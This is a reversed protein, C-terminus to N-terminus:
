HKSNPADTPSLPIEFSDLQKNTTAVRVKRLELTAHALVPEDFGNTDYFLYGAVTTHPAVTTTKFGFDEDDALIKKDVNVKGTTIPIPIPLPLTHKTGTASKITFLGRQLEDDTAAPVVTNDAAIFHIRADDLTLAFDSDNTVIVRIPLFGHGRYDLRTDPATEKTDGPEAAITVHEAAHTEHLAYQQAPLAPKPKRPKDAHASAAALLFMLAAAFSLMGWRSFGIERRAILGSALAEPYGTQPPSAKRPRYSRSPM